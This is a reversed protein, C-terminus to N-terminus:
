SFELLERYYIVYGLVFIMYVAIVAYILSFWEGRQYGSDVTFMKNTLPNTVLALFLVLYPMCLAFRIWFSKRIKHWTDKLSIVFLAYLPVTLNHIILYGCHAAYLASLNTSNANDLTVAWIDFVTALWTFSSFVLFLRNQTGSTMKRMICSVILITLILLAAIDFSLSKGM